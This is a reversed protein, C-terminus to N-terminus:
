DFVFEKGFALGGFGDDFLLINRWHGTMTTLDIVEHQQDNSKTYPKAGIIPHHTHSFNFSLSQLYHCIFLLTKVFDQTRHLWWKKYHQKTECRYHSPTYAFIQILSIPPLLLSQLYHCIFLLTKVSDQTWWKKYHQTTECRYHSPTHTFIQILSVPPLSVHHMFLLTKVSDQTRHWWWNKYSRCCHRWGDMLACVAFILFFIRHSSIAPLCMWCVSRAGKWWHIPGFPEVVWHM